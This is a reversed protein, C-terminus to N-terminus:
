YFFIPKGDEMALAALCESLCLMDEEDRPHLKLDIIQQHLCERTYESQSAEDRGPRIDLMGYSNIIRIIIAPHRELNFGVTTIIDIIDQFRQRLVDRTMEDAWELEIMKPINLVTYGYFRRKSQGPLIGQSFVYSVIRRDLQYAIEGLIRESSNKDTNGIQPLSIMKNIGYMTNLINPIPPSQSEIETEKQFHAHLKADSTAALNTDEVIKDDAAVTGVKEDETREHIDEMVKNGNAIVDLQENKVTEATEGEIYSEQYNRPARGKAPTSTAPQRLQLALQEEWEHLDTDDVDDSVSCMCPKTLSYRSCECIIGSSDADHLVESAM